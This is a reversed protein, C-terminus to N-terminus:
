LQLTHGLLVCLQMNCCHVNLDTVKVISAAGATM